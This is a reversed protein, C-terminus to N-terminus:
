TKFILVYMLCCSNIFELCGTLWVDCKLVGTPVSKFLLLRKQVTLELKGNKKRRKYRRYMWRGQRRVCGMRIRKIKRDWQQEEWGRVTARREIQVTWIGQDDVVVVTVTDDPANVYTLVCHDTIYLIINLLQHLGCLFTELHNMTNHQLCWWFNYFLNSCGNRQM